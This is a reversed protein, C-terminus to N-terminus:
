LKFPISMTIKTGTGPASNISTMGGLYDVRERISFLGFGGQEKNPNEIDAVNFGSGNDEVTIMAQENKLTIVSVSAKTAKSHKIINVLLERVAKFLLIIAENPLPLKNLGSGNFFVKIKYKEQFQKCLSELAPEFGLEYLIPSSLELSLNRTYQLAQEVLSSIESLNEDCGQFIANARLEGLKIKAMVLSQGIHDHLDIAIRRRERSEALVLESALSRLKKHYSEQDAQNDKKDTWLSM